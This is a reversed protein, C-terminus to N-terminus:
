SSRNGTMRSTLMIAATSLLFGPVLEYLEFIGGLPAVQKWLVVTMGGVVIGALAGARTM